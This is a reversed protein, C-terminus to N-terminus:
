SQVKVCEQWKEYDLTYQYNESLEEFTLWEDQALLAANDESDLSLIKQIVLSENKAIAGGQKMINLVDNYDLPVYKKRPILDRSRDGYSRGDLSYQNAFPAGNPTKLWVIVPHTADLVDKNETIYIEVVEYDGNKCEWDEAKNTLMNTKRLIIDFNSEYDQISYEGNKNCHNCDESGDPRTYYVKYPYTPDYRTKTVKTVKWEPYGRVQLNDTPKDIYQELNM